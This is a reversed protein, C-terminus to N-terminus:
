EFLTPLGKLLERLTDAVYVSDEYGISDFHCWMIKYPLERRDFAFFSGCGDTAFIFYGPAFEDIACGTQCEKMEAISYLRLFADNALEGYGGDHRRLFEAYDSPADPLETRLHVDVESTPPAPNLNFGHFLREDTM